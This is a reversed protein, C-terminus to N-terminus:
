PVTRFYIILYLALKVNPKKNTIYTGRMEDEDM